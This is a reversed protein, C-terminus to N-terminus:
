NESYKKKFKCDISESNNFASSSAVPNTVTLTNVPDALASTSAVPKMQNANESEWKANVIRFAVTPVFDYASVDLSQIKSTKTKYLPLSM